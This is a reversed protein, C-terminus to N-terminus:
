SKPASASVNRSTESIASGPTLFLGTRAANEEFLVQGADLSRATCTAAVQGLEEASLDRFLEIGSLFQKM